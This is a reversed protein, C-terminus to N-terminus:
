RQSKRSVHAQAAQPRMHVDQDDSFCIEFKLNESKIRTKNASQDNFYESGVLWCVGRTDLTIITTFKDYEKMARWFIDCSTSRGISFGRFRASYFKNPYAGDFHREGEAENRSCINEDGLGM